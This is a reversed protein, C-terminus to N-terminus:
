APEAKVAAQAREVHSAPEPGEESLTTSENLPARPAPSHRADDLEAAIRARRQQVELFRSYQIVIEAM